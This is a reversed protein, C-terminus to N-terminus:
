DMMKDLITMLIRNLEEPTERRSKNIWKKITALAGFLIFTHLYEQEGKAKSANLRRDYSLKEFALTILREYFENGPTDDLFMHFVEINEIVYNLLRIMTEEANDTKICKEITDLCDNEIDKLLDFETNYHKYFTSRNIGANECIEKISIKYINKEGMLNILSDQLLKKTLRVRQNEGM